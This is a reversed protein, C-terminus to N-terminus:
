SPRVFDKAFIRNKRGNRVHKVRMIRPLDARANLVSRWDSSSSPLVFFLKSGNWEFKLGPHRHKKDIQWRNVGFM